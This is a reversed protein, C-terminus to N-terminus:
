MPKNRLQSEAVYVRRGKKNVYYYRSNKNIYITQGAPGVKSDYKKDVVGSAGKSAVEATKNGVKKATKATTKGVSKATKGVKQGFTTDSKTQAQSEFAIFMAGALVSIKLINKM